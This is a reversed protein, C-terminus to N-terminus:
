QAVKQLEALLRGPGAQLVSQRTMATSLFPTSLLQKSASGCLLGVCPLLTAASTAAPSSLPSSSFPARCLQGPATPPPVSDCLVLGAVALGWSCVWPLWLLLPLM